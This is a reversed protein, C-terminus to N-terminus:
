ASRICTSQSLLQLAFCSVLCFFLLILLQHQESTLASLATQTLCLLTPGIRIMALKLSTEGSLFPGTHSHESLDDVGLVHVVRRSTICTCGYVSAMRSTSWGDFNLTLHQEKALAAEQEKVVLRSERSLLV